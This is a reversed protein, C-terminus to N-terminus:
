QLPAVDGRPTAAEAANRDIEDASLLHGSGVQRKGAWRVTALLGRPQGRM